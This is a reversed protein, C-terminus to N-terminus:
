SPNVVSPASSCLPEFPVRRQTGGHGHDIWGPQGGAVRNSTDYRRSRIWILPGVPPTFEGGVRKM